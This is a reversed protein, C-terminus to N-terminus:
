TTINLYNMIAVQNYSIFARDNNEYYDVITIKFAKKM